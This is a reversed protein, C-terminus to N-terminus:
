TVYNRRPRTDIAVRNKKFVNIAQTMKVASALADIRDDHKGNPFKLLEAELEKTPLHNMLHYIKYNAYRPELLAKIRAEKEGMPTIEEVVYFKNRISMQKKFELILMKQYSVNEFGIIDAAFTEAIRFM